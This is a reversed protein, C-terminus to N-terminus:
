ARDRSWLAVLGMVFCNKRRADDIANAAKNTIKRPPWAEAAGGIPGGPLPPPSPRGHCTAARKVALQTKAATATATRERGEFLDSLGLFASFWSSSQRHAM